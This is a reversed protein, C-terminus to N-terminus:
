AKQYKLILEDTYEAIDGIVEDCDERCASIMCCNLGGYKSQFRMLLELRMLKTTEESFLIGFVMISGVLASCITGVGFGNNIGGCCDSIQQPIAFNFKESAAMIICSSCNYGQSHFSIARTRM